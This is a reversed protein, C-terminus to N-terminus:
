IQRKRYWLWFIILVVIGVLPILQWLSFYDSLAALTLTELMM